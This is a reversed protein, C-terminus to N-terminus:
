VAAVAESHYGLINNCATMVVADPDFDMDNGRQTCSWLAHKVQEAVVTRWYSPVCPHPVHFEQRYIWHDKPLPLSMTFCGSGDPLEQM